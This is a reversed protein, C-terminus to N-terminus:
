VAEVRNARGTVLTRIAGAAVGVLCVTAILALLGISGGEGASGTQGASSLETVTSSRSPPGLPEPETGIGWGARLEDAAGGPASRPGDPPTGTPVAGGQPAPADTEAAPAGPNPPAAPVGQSATGGPQAPSTGATSGTGGDSRSSGGAGPDTRPVSGSQQGPSPSAAPPPSGAAPPPPTPGPAADDEGPQLLEVRVAGSPKGLLCSIQMTVQAPGNHFTVEAVGGNAVEGVAEGDIRITAAQGLKNVFRVGTGPTLSVQSVDPQSRAGIGLLGCGGSFTVTDTPVPNASALSGALLPVSLLAGVSAAVVTRRWRHPTRIPSTM